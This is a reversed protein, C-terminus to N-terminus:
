EKGMLAEAEQKAGELNNKEKEIAKVWNLKEQLVEAMGDVKQAVENTAEVFKSSGIIDELYEM